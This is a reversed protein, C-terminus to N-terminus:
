RSLPYKVESIKGGRRLILFTWVGMLSGLGYGFHMAAFAVPSLFAYRLGARHIVEVAGLGLALVYLAAFAALGYAMPSWALSAIILVLWALVFGLPAIQRLSAPQRHKQITRIRWFGYQYYQRALTRFSRRAHYGYVIDSDLYIKGGAKIVRYNLEDDQNRILEEDFLGIKDFVWRWYCGSVTDVYGKYNGTRYRANGAGVPSVMAAAITKGVFGEGVTHDAGGACWVEPHDLLIRVCQRFYGTSGSPASHASLFFLIEGKAAEIGLNFAVPTIRRPNSILRVQPITAGLERVIEATRDDSMGDVVLVEILEHPYHAEMIHEICGRIYREENRAPIVITIRPWPGTENM